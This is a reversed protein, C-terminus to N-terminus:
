VRARQDARASLRQINGLSFLHVYLLGLFGARSMQALVKGPLKQLKSENLVQFGSLLESDIGDREVRVVKPELLDHEILLKVMERTASVANQYDTLFGVAHELVPSNSGDATFLPVGAEDDTLAPADICVNFDDHGPGKEGTVFPYRRFFAPVYHGDAWAGDEGVFFNAEKGLGLLVAPLIAEGEGAFVIPYDHAAMSFEAVTLPASNLERAFGYGLHGPRLKAARHADRDLVQPADYILLQKM